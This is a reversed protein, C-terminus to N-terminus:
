LLEELEDRFASGLLPGLGFGLVNGFIVSKPLTSRGYGLRLLSFRRLSEVEGVMMKPLACFSAPRGGDLPRWGYGSYRVGSSTFCMTMAARAM